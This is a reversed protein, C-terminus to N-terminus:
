SSHRTPHAEPLSCMKGSMELHLYRMCQPRPLSIRCLAKLIMYHLTGCLLFLVREFPIAELCIPCSKLLLDSM